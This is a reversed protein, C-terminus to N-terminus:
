FKVLISAFIDTAFALFALYLISSREILVLKIRKCWSTEEFSHKFNSQKPVFNWFVGWSKGM